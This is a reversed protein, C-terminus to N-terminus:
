DHKQVNPHLQGTAGWAAASRLRVTLCLFWNKEFKEM